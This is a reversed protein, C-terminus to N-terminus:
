GFCGAYFGYLAAGAGVAAIVLSWGGTPIAGILGMEAAVLGVSAVACVVDGGNLQRMEDYTMTQM